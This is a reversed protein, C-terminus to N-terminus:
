LPNTIEQEEHGQCWIIKQGRVVVFYSRSIHNRPESKWFNLRYHNTWLFCLRLTEGAREPFLRAIEKEPDFSVKWTKGDCETVVMTACDQGAM